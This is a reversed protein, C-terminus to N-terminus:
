KKGEITKPRVRISKPLQEPFADSHYSSPLGEEEMPPPLIRGFRMPATDYRFPQPPTNQVRGGLQIPPADLLRGTRMPTTDHYFPPPRYGAPTGGVQPSQGLQIAPAPLGAPRPASLNPPQPTGFNPKPGGTRFGERIATDIPNSSLYRGAAIDKGADYLNSLPKVWTAPKMVEVGKALEFPNALKSFGYTEDPQMITSRGGVQKGIQAVSGFTKRIGQPDIGMKQLVPDLAGQVAKERALADAQNLGKQEALKLASPNGTKLGRNIASLQLREQELEKLTTPGDPGSVKMNPAADIAQQYPSWIESKAQPIRAQLEAQSQVGSLYPRANQISSQFPAVKKGGAPVQLGKLAAADENGIAASRISSGASRMAPSVPAIPTRNPFASDVGGAVMPAVQASMGTLTGMAGPNTAVNKVNGMYSKSPDYAPAQQAAKSLAPGIMPVAQILHQAIGSANGKMGEQEAQTIESGTQKAQGYLSQLLPLGPGAAAKALSLVPHQKLEDLRAQGEEPTVGFQAGLSHLFGEPKAAPPATPAISKGNADWEASQANSPPAQIPKGNADWEQPDM